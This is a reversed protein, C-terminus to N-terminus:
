ICLNLPSVSRPTTSVDLNYRSEQEREMVMMRIEFGLGFEM